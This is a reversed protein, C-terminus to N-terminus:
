RLRDVSNVVYNDNMGGRNYIMSVTSFTYGVSPTGYNVHNTANTSIAIKHTWNIGNIM